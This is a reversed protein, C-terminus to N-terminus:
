LEQADEQPSNMQAKATRLVNMAQNLGTEAQQVGKFTSGVHAILQEFVQNAYADADSQLRTANTQAEEMIDRAQEQTQQMIIRAREKAQIVIENEDLLQNARVQAADIIDKAEDRARALINEQEQMIETARNLEKPLDMRLEEILHVIEDDNVLAKDSFPLHSADAVLDELKKLTDTVAM